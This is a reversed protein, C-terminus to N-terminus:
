WAKTGLVAASPLDAALRRADGVHVVTDAHYYRDGILYTLESARRYCAIAKPYNRLQRAGYGLSDWAAAESVQDGLEACLAV